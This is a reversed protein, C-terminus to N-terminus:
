APKVPKVTMKWRELLMGLRTTQFFGASLLWCSRDLCRAVGGSLRRIRQLMPGSFGDLQLQYVVAQGKLSRSPCADKNCKRPSGLIVDFRRM